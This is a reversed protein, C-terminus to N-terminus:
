HKWHYESGLQKAIIYKAIDQEFSPTLKSMQLLYRLSTTQEGYLGLFKNARERITISAENWDLQYFLTGVRVMDNCDSLLLHHNDLVFAYKAAIDDIGGITSVPLHYQGTRIIDGTYIFDGNIDRFNTQVGAFIVRHAYDNRIFNEGFLEYVVDENHMEAWCEDKSLVYLDDECFFFNGFHTYGFQNEDNVYRIRINPLSIAGLGIDLNYERCLEKLYEESIANPIIYLDSQNM